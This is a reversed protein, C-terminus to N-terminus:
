AKGSFIDVYIEVSGTGDQNFIDIANTAGHYRGFNFLNARTVTTEPFYYVDSLFDTRRRQTSNEDHHRHRQLKRRHLLNRRRLEGRRRGFTTSIQRLIHKLVPTHHHHRNH